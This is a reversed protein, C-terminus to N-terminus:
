QAARLSLVQVNATLQQQDSDDQGRAARAPFVDLSEVLVLPLYGAMGALAEDLAALSGTATLKVGIYDFSGQERAPLVQSNTVSRGARAFIDRVQTQLEAAVTAQDESAPYVLELVKSDVTEAAAQLPERSDILGQLRAIRPEIRELESQAAQRAGLLGWVLNLYVLLPLMLTLGCIWATRQHSRLWNV